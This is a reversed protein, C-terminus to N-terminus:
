DRVCHGTSCHEGPTCPTNDVCTIQCHNAETDTVPQVLATFTSSMVSQGICGPMTVRAVDVFRGTRDLSIGSFTIPAGGNCSVQVTATAPGGEIGGSLSCWYAVGIEYAAPSPNRVNIDEPGFGDADDQLLTADGDIGTPPWVATTNFWWCAANTYWVNNAQALHLDADGHATSWTLTVHLTEARVKATCTASQGKDNTVTLQLTYAGAVDILFNTGASTPTAPLSTSGAPASLVTWQFTVPGGDPDSGSGALSVTSSPASLIESPCSALPAPKALDAGTTFDLPQLDLPTALDFATALDRPALDSGLLDHGARALDLGGLDAAPAALDKVDDAKGLDVQGVQFPDHGPNQRLCGLALVSALALFRM